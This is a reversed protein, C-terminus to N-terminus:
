EIKSLINKPSDLWVHQGDPTVTLGLRDIEPTGLATWRADAIVAEDWLNRDGRQEVLTRHGDSRVWAHSHDGHLVATFGGNEQEFGSVDIGPLVGALFARKGASPGTVKRPDVSSVTEREEANASVESGPVDRQARLMMFSCEGHFRGSATGDEQVTLAAVQYAPAWPLVVRGEPRTQRIWSYPVDHVGCTIHVRDFPAFDPAGLSGDGVIVRPSRGVRALNKRAIAALSPDVEISVVHEDGVLKGLLGATWGTGTGVEMVKDGPRTELLSLFSFVLAPASSSCTFNFTRQVTEATLETEGDDIQTVIATNAHVMEWWHDPDNDRDIWHDEGNWQATASAKRPIFAHRPVTFPLIGQPVRDSM